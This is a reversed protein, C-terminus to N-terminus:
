SRPTYVGDLHNSSQGIEYTNGLILKRSLIKTIVLDGIIYKWTVILFILM